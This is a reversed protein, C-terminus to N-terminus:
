KRDQSTTYGSFMILYSKAILCSVLVYHIAKSMHHCIHMHSPCFNEVKTTNVHPVSRPHRTCEIKWLYMVISKQKTQVELSKNLEQENKILLECLDYIDPTHAEEM